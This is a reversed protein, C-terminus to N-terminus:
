LVLYLVETRTAPLRGFVPQAGAICLGMDLLLISKGLKPGGVLVNLGAYLLEKIICPPRAVQQQMFAAATVSVFDPVAAAGARRQQDEYLEDLLARGRGPSFQQSQDIREGVLVRAQAERLDLQGGDRYDGNLLSWFTLERGDRDTQVMTAVLTYGAWQAHPLNSWPLRQANM